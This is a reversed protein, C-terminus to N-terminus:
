TGEQRPEVRGEVDVSGDGGSRATDYGVWVDPVELERGQGDTRTGFYETL